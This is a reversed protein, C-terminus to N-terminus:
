PGRYRVFWVAEGGLSKPVAAKEYGRTADIVRAETPTWGDLSSLDLAVADKRTNAVLLAAEKNGADTAATAFVGCLVGSTGGILVFLIMKIGVVLILRFDGKLVGNDVIDRMLDPQWLDMAVEGVMFLPALVCYLKYKRVYKLM